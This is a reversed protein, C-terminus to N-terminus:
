ISLYQPVTSAGPGGNLWLLVPNSRDNGHISIWQDIGGIRVYMSEDIAAADAPVIVALAVFLVFVRVLWRM